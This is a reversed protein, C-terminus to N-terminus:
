SKPPAPLQLIDHLVLAQPFYQDSMAHLAKTGGKKESGWVQFIPEGGKTDSIKSFKKHTLELLKTRM